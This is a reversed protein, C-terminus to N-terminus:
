VLWALVLVLVEGALIQFHECGAPLLPQIIFELRLASRMVQLAGLVTVIDGGLGEVADLNLPARMSDKWPTWISRHGCQLPIQSSAPSSSSKIALSSVPSMPRTNRSIEVLRLPEFPGSHARWVTGPSPRRSVVRRPM